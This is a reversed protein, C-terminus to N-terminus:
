EDIYTLQNEECWEVAIKKLAEEKFKYWDDEIGLEHIRDKFRGFAGRGKIDRLLTESIGAERPLSCFAEMIRYENIDFKSPLVVYDAEHQLIDGAVAIPERMWDPFDEPPTGEEAAEMMEDTIFVFEGTKRNWYSTGEESGLEMEGILEKLKVATEMKGGDEIGASEESGREKARLSQEM